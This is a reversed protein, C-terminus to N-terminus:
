FQEFEKGKLEKNFDNRYLESLNKDVKILTASTRVSAGIVFYGKMALHSEQLYVGSKDAYVVDLDTSGKHLKFEDGWIVKARQSFCCLCFCFSALLLIWQKMFNTKNILPLM